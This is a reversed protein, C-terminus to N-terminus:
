PFLGAHERVRQGHARLNEMDNEDPRRWDDVLALNEALEAGDGPAMLAVAVAPHALVFRYWERPPPPTFGPPDSPTPESLKGWRQCTYAVVPVGMKTTAPFVDEEAGRHAANYRVMLLDVRGTQAWKAALTRQHTTVGILRVQGRERAEALFEMAGGPGTVASWERVSELYYFTLVDIYDSGLEALTEKLEAEAGKADQAFFQKAVVLRQREDSTLEAVARSMGDAYGCWNLYNIGSDVAVRVDASQLHTNGRTAVGLRCVPPTGGGLDTYRDFWAM